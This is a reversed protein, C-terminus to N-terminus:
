GREELGFHGFTELSFNGKQAIFECFNGNRGTQAEIGSLSGLRM